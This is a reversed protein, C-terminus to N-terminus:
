RNCNSNESHSFLPAPTPIVHVHVGSVCLSVTMTSCKCAAFDPELIPVYNLHLGSCIFSFPSASRLLWEGGGLDEESM